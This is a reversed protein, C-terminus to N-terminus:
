GHSASRALGSAVDIKRVWGGRGDRQWLMTGNQDFWPATTKHRRQRSWMPVPGYFTRRVRPMGVILAWLYFGALSMGLLSFATVLIPVTERPLIRTLCFLCDILVIAAVVISWNLLLRGLEWNAWRRLGGSQTRSSYLTNM